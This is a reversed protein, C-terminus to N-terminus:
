QIENLEYHGYQKVAEQLTPTDIHHDMTIVALGPQQQVEAKTVGPLAELAKRVNAACGSCSM